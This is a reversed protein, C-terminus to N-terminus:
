QQANYYSEIIITDSNLFAEKAADFVSGSKIESSLLFDILTNYRSLTPVKNYETYEETEPLEYDQLGYGSDIAASLMEKLINKYDMADKGLGISLDLTLISALQQTTFIPSYHTLRRLTSCEKIYACQRALESGTEICESLTLTLNPGIKDLVVEVEEIPSTKIIHVIDEIVEIKSLSNSDLDDLIEGLDRAFLSKDKGSKIYERLNPTGQTELYSNVVDQLEPMTHQLHVQRVALGSVESLSDLNRPTARDSNKRVLSAHKSTTELMSKYQSKDKNEAYEIAFSVRLLKSLPFSLSSKESHIALVLYMDNNMLRSDVLAVSLPQIVESPILDVLGNGTPNSEFKNLYLDTIFLSTFLTKQKETRCTSTIDESTVDTGLEFLDMFIDYLEDDFTHVYTDRFHNLIVEDKHTAVLVIIQNRLAKLLKPEVEEDTNLVQSASTLVRDIYSLTM